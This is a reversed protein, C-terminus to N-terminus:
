QHKGTIVGVPMKGAAIGGFVGVAIGDVVRRHRVPHKEPLFCAQVLRLAAVQPICDPVPFLHTHAAHKGIPVTIGQTGVKGLPTGLGFLLQRHQPPHKGLEM